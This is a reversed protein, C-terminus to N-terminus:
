FGTKQRPLKGVTRKVSQLAGKFEPLVELEEIKTNQTLAHIRLGHNLFEVSIRDMEQETGRNIKISKPIDLLSLAAELPMGIKLTKGIVLVEKEKKNIKETARPDADGAPMSDLDACLYADRARADAPGVDRAPIDNQITACLLAVSLKCAKM